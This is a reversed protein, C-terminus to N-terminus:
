SKVIRDIYLNNRIFLSNLPNNVKRSLKHKKSTENLLNLMFHNYDPLKKVLLNGEFYEFCSNSKPLTLKEKKERLYNIVDGLKILQLDDIVIQNNILILGKAIAAKASTYNKFYGAYILVNIISLALTKYFKGTKALHNIENM